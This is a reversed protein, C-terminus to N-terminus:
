LKKFTCSYLYSRVFIDKFFDFFLCIPIQAHLIKYWTCFRQSFQLFTGDFFTVSYVQILLLLFLKIKAGEKAQLMKKHFARQQEIKM